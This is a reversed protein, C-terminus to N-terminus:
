GVMRSHVGTQPCMRTERYQDPRGVALEKSVNVESTLDRSSWFSRRFTVKRFDGSTVSTEARNAFIKSGPWCHQM